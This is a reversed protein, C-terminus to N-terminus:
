GASALTMIRGKWSGRGRQVWVNRLSTSLSKVGVETTFDETYPDVGMSAHVNAFANQLSAHAIDRRVEAVLTNMEERILTQESTRGAAAEARLKSLLRRQVNFYEQATRLEKRAHLFRVRSVHVQTIIAMTLALGRQRLLDGQAEVVSRKAPYHVIKMLNWTARAGWSLWDNNLLFDNSDYNAGAYLELGPLLELMAAHAEHMNIRKRYAVERLEARNNMATWIMDRVKGGIKLHRGDLRPYTLRFRTGPKLNMLAALQTKAVSLDRQLEQITRKIQVLEREYTLATVPSTQEEAALSRTTALAARTRSELRRLRHVLREATVARWFATRVDEIIRNVVKRRAEDAILTKD